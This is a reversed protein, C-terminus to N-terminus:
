VRRSAQEAPVFFFFILIALDNSDEPYRFNLFAFCKRAGLSEFQFRILIPILYARLDPFSV